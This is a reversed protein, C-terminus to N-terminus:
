EIKLMKRTQVFPGAHLRYFYIGTAHGSADWVVEYCGAEQHGSLLTTVRQGTLTYITLTVDSAEPLDYALITIPNFPNPHNPYLAYATPVVETKERAHITVSVPPTIPGHEYAGMDPDSGVPNPRVNGEIDTSPMGATSIGTGLCPSLDTLHYDDNAADTFLPDANINGTGTYGGQIDSYSITISGGLRVSIQSGTNGYIISNVVTGTGNNSCEIGGGYRVASNSTITCNIITASGGSGVEIGGNGWSSTNGAIVNNTMTAHLAHTKIGGGWLSASNNMIFNGTLVPSGSGFYVGGGYQASNSSITNETISPSSSAGSEIGGGGKASNNSIINKTITPSSGFCYIAGGDTASGNRITFGKLVSTSDEGNHFYFGRGSHQCDIITVEPGNQSTVVIAKAKFDIDRNGEGTYIGDAVLVIGGNSAADIAAQITAYQSPVRLATSTAVGDQVDLSLAQGNTDFITTEANGDVVVRATTSFTASALQFTVQVITGSGAAITGTGGMDILGM